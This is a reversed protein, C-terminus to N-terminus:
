GLGIVDLIEIKLLILFREIFQTIFYFTQQM